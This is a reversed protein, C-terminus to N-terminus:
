PKLELLMTGHAPIIGVIQRVKEWGDDTWLERSSCQISHIGFDSLPQIVRRPQDGLNFLAVYLSGRSSMSTWAVLDDHQFLVHQDHGHQNMAIVERNTLLRTTGDDLATLNAGIFLPSRAIAWLTVLTRQEDPTLRTKRAHGWGPVPALTGLPLM